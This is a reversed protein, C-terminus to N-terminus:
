DQSLGQVPLLSIFEILGWDGGKTVESAPGLDLMDTAEMEADPM